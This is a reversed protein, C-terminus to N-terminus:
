YVAVQSRWNHENSRPTTNLIPTVIESPEGKLLSM